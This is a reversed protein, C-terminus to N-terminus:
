PKPQMEAAVREAMAQMARATALVFPLVVDYVVKGAEILEVDSAKAAQERIEPAYLLPLDMLADQMAVSADCVDTDEARDFMEILRRRLVRNERISRVPVTVTKGGLVLDIQQCLVQEEDRSPMM